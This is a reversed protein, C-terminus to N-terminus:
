HLPRRHRVQVTEGILHGRVNFGRCVSSKEAGSFGHGSSFCKHSSKRPSVTGHPYHDGTRQMQSIPLPFGGNQRGLFLNAFVREALLRLTDARNPLAM